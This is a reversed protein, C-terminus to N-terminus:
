IAGTACDLPNAEKPRERQTGLADAQRPRALISFGFDLVHDALDDLANRQEEEFNEFFV